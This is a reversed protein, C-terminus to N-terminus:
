LLFYFVFHFSFFICLLFFCCSFSVIRIMEGVQILVPTKFTECYVYDTLSRQQSFYKLPLDQENVKESSELLGKEIFVFGFHLRCCSYIVFAFKFM